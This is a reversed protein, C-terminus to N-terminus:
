KLCDQLRKMVFFNVVLRIFSVVLRLFNVVLRVVLVYDYWSSLIQKSHLSLKNSPLILYESIYLSSAFLILLTLTKAGHLIEFTWIVVQLFFSTLIGIRNKFEPLATVM